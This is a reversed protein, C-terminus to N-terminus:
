EEEYARNRYQMKNLGTRENDLYDSSRSLPRRDRERQRPEEDLHRSSNSKPFMRDDGTYGKRYGGSDRRDPLPREIRSDVDPSRGIRPRPIVMNDVPNMRYDGSQREDAPQHAARRENERIELDDQREPQRRALRRMESVLGRKRQRVYEDTDDISKTKQLLFSVRFLIISLIIALVLFTGLVGGIIGSNQIVAQKLGVVDANTENCFHGTYQGDCSCMFGDQGSRSCTGHVCPNPNCVAVCGHRLVDKEKDMRYGDKCKCTYGGYFNECNTTDPCIKPNLCEDEDECIEVLVNTALEYSTRRFFGNKCKCAFGMSSSETTKCETELGCFKTVIQENQCPKTEHFVEEDMKKTVFNPPILCHKGDSLPLCVSSTSVLKIKEESPKGLKIEMSCKWEDSADSCGLITSGVYGEFISKMSDDFDKRLKILDLDQISRKDRSTPNNAVEYQERSVNFDGVYSFPALRNCKGNTDKILLPPCICEAEFEANLICIGQNKLCEAHIFDCKHKCAANEDKKYGKKCICEYGKENIFNNKCFAGKSQCYEYGYGEECMHKIECHVSDKAYKYKGTCNCKYGYIEDTICNDNPCEKLHLKNATCRDTCSNRQEIHSISPCVCYESSGKKVCTGVGCDFSCKKEDTVPDCTIGNDKTTFGARCTCLGNSCDQACKSQGPSCKEVKRCGKGVQYYGEICSCIYTGKGEECKMNPGCPSSGEETLCFDSVCLRTPINTIKTVSVSETKVYKM